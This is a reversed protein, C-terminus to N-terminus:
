CVGQVERGRGWRALFLPQLALDHQCKNFSVSDIRAWPVTLSLAGPTIPLVRLLSPRDYYLLRQRERKGGRRENERMNAKIEVIGKEPHHRM